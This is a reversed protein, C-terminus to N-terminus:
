KSQMKAVRQNLEKVVRVRFFGLDELKLLDLGLNVEEL